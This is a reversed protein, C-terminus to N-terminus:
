KLTYPMLNDILQSVVEYPQAGNVEKPESMNEVYVLTYPTGQAGAAIGAAADAKVKNMEAETSMCGRFETLNAGSAVAFEELKTIDTPENIARSAFLTDIFRWFANNGASAAVCESALALKNANPHLQQIPFHRYVIAVEGSEGYEAMVKNLTEHFNKCFPCDLDTYTVFVIGASANGRVHDTSSIAPAQSEISFETSYADSLGSEDDCFSYGRVSRSRTRASGNSDVCFYTGDSLLAEAAYRDVEDQCYGGELSRYLDATDTCVNAYSRGSEDFSLEAEARLSSLRQKASADEATPRDELYLLDDGYDDEYEQNIEDLISGLMPSLAKVEEVSLTEEPIDVKTPKNVNTLDIYFSVNLQREAEPEEEPEEAATTIGTAACETGRAKKGENAFGTSDICYYGDSLAVDVAYAEASDNCTYEWDDDIFYFVESVCFDQYSYGNDDFHIEAEARLSSLRQKKWADEGKTRASDLPNEVDNDIAIRSELGFRVPIGDPRIWLVLKNHTNIYDIYASSTLMDLDIEDALETFFNHKGFEETFQKEGEAFFAQMEDGNLILSYKYAKEGNVEDKSPTGALKLVPHERVLETLMEIQQKVVPDAMVEETFDEQYDGMFSDALGGDIVHMWQGKVDSFDFFMLSPMRNVRVYLGEENAMIVEVDVSLSFDDTEYSGAIQTKIDPVQHEGIDFQGAVSGFVRMDGPIMALFQSMDYDDDLKFEEPLLYTDPDKEVSEAKFSVKYGATKIEALGTAIGELLQEETYPAGGFLGTLFSPLKVYGALAVIVGIALFIAVALGAIMVVKHKQGVHVTSLQPSRVAPTIPSDPMKHDGPMYPSGEPYSQVPEPEAVPVVPPVMEPELVPEPEPEPVSVPEPEPTVEPEPAPEEPIPEPTVELEPTMEPAPASPEPAAMPATPIPPIDSGPTIRNQAAAYSAEFEELNYGAALVEKRLNEKQDGGKIRDVLAVILQEHM